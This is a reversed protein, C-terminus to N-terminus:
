YINLIKDMKELKEVTRDLSTKEIGNFLYDTNPTIENKKVQNYIVNIKKSINEIFEKNNVLPINLDINETLFCIASYIIYKRKRKVGNTYRIAYLNLLSQIIKNYLKNSKKKSESIIADWIIWVIDKQFKQDVPAFARRDCDCKVKKQKCINEYLILWEVWYSALTTDCSLKSIHYSFENIAIFIEKPDEERFISKAFDINPAKLKSTLNTIDFNNVDKISLNEFAYKKRSSCLICILEAFLKRIKDNNRLSLENGIYGNSIINKFNQFRVEIYIPLKPNAMHIYRAMYLLLIEWLDQYQGACILEVSWYCAPEIKNNYLCLLLENKVKNKSYKSFTKSKFESIDRCDNIENHNM